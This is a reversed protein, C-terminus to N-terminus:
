QLWDPRHRRVWDPRTEILEHIRAPDAELWRMVQPMQEEPHWAADSEKPLHRCWLYRVKAKEFKKHLVDSIFIDDRGQFGGVWIHRGAIEQSSLTVDELGKRYPLRDGMRESWHPADAVDLYADIVACPNFIYYEVPHPTGDKAELAISFFQHANPELSEIIDRVKLSVCIMGIIHFADCLKKQDTQRATLNPLVTGCFRYGILFGRGDDRIFAPENSARVFDFKPSRVNMQVM